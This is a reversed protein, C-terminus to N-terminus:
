HSEARRVSGVKKYRWGMRQLTKCMTKVTCNLGLADIREQLTADPHENLHKRLKKELKDDVAPKRGRRHTLPELSGTERLQLVLKRVLKHSVDFRASVKRYSVGRAEYAAVIRKRLDMSLPGM